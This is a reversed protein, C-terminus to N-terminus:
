GIKQLLQDSGVTNLIKFDVQESNIALWPDYNLIYKQNDVMVLNYENASIDKAQVIEVTTNNSELMLLTYSMGLSIALEDFNNDALLEWPTPWTTKDQWHLVNKVRPAHGWWGAIQNLQAKLSKNECDQRLQVWSQLREEYGVPWM